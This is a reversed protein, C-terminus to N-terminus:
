CGDYIFYLATNILNSDPTGTVWDRQSMSNPSEVSCLEHVVPIPPQYYTTKTFRTDKATISIWSLWIQTILSFRSFCLVSINFHLYKWAHSSRPAWICDPIQRKGDRPKPKRQTAKSEPSVGGGKPTNLSGGVAGHKYGELPAGEGWFFYIKKRITRALVRTSVRM